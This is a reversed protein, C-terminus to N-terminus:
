DRFSIELSNGGVAAVSVFGTSVCRRLLVGHAPIGFADASTNLGRREVYREIIRLGLM